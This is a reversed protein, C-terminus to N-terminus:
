SGLRSSTFIEAVVRIRSPDEGERTLTARLALADVICGHPDTVCDLDHPGDPIIGAVVPAFYTTGAAPPNVEDAVVAWVLPGPTCSTLPAAGRRLSGDIVTWSVLTDAVGDDSTDVTLTLEDDNLLWLPHRLRASDCPAAATIDDNFDAVAVASYRTTGGTDAGAGALLLLAITWRVVVALVVGTLAAVVATELLTLARRTRPHSRHTRRRAASLSTM